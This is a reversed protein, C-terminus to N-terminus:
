HIFGIRGPAGTLHFVRAPGDGSDKAVPTLPGLATEIRARIESYSVFQDEDMLLKSRGLPMFEIFRVTRPSELTLRAFDVAEDLNYGRMVVVNIKAPGMGCAEAAKIGRWVR